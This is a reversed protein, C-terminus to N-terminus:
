RMRRLYELYGEIERRYDEPYKKSRLAEEIRKIREMREKSSIDNETGAYQEAASSAEFQRDEENSRKLGKEYSLMRELLKSQRKLMEDYAKADFKGSLSKMEQEIKGMEEAMGSLEGLGKGKSGFAKEEGGKGAGQANGGQKGAGQADGQGDGQADGSTSGGPKKSLSKMAERILRQEEALESLYDGMGSMDREMGSKGFLSRTRENVSRQRESMSSMGEGEGSSQADASDRLRILRYTLAYQKGALTDLSRKLQYPDFRNDVARSYEDFGAIVEDFLGALHEIGRVSRSLERVVDNKMRSLVGRYHALEKAITRSEPPIRNLRASQAAEDIWDKHVAIRENIRHMSFLAGDIVARIRSAADEMMESLMSELSSALADLSRGADMARAKAEKADAPTGLKDMGALGSRSLAEKAKASRERSLGANNERIMSSLAKARDGIIEEQRMREANYDMGSRLEAALAKERSALDRAERSLFSLRERDKLESLMALLNDLKKEFQAASMRVASSSKERDAPNAAKMLENFNRDLEALTERSLESLSARIDKLKDIVEASLLKNVEAERASKEVNAAIADLKKRMEKVDHSLAEAKREDPADSKTGLARDRKAEREMAETSKKLEEADTALSSLSTEADTRKKNMALFLEAMSPFIIRRTESVGGQGASDKASLYYAIKYGPNPKLSRYDFRCSGMVSKEGTNSIISAVISRNSMRMGGGDYLDAHLSLSLIGHDDSARYVVSLPTQVEVTIDSRPERMEVFPPADAALSLRYLPTAINTFGYRDILTIFWEGEQSLRMSFSLRNERVYARLYNTRDRVIVSVIANSLPNNAEADVSISSGRVAEVNGDDSVISRVGHSTTVVRLARVAPLEVARITRAATRMVASGKYAHVSFTLDDALRMRYEWGNSVASCRYRRTSVVMVEEADATVHISAEGGRVVAIPCDVMVAVPSTVVFPMSLWFRSLTRVTLPLLVVALVAIVGWSILAYRIIRRAELRFRLPSFQAGKLREAFGDIFRQETESPLAEFEFYSRLAFGMRYRDDLERVAADFGGFRSIHGVIYVVAAIFSIVAATLLATPHYISIRVIRDFVFLIPVSFSFVLFFVGISACVHARRRGRRYQEVNQRIVDTNNGTTNM